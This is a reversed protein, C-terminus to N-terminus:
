SDLTRLVVVASALRARALAAIREAGDILDERQHRTEARFSAVSQLASLALVPLLALALALALRFRITKVNPGRLLGARVPVAPSGPAASVNRTPSFPAWPRARRRAM